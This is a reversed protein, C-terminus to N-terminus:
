RWLNKQVADAEKKSSKASLLTQLEPKKRKATVAEKQPQRIKKRLKWANQLMEGVKHPYRMVYARNEDAIRPMYRDVIQVLRDAQEGVRYRESFRQQYLEYSAEDKRSLPEGTQADKYGGEECTTIQRSIWKDEAAPEYLLHLGGRALFQIKRKCRGGSNSSSDSSSTTAPIHNCGGGAATPAPLPQPVPPPQPARVNMREAIGHLRCEPDERM